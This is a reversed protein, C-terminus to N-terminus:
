GDIVVMDGNELGSLLEYNTEDAMGVTIDRRERRGNRLIVCTPSNGRWHIAKRPILLADINEYSIIHVHVSMGMRLRPDTDRVGIVVRFYKQWDPRGPAHGAMSSVTQVSGALRLTPYAIPEIVAERGVSVNSLEAEPVECRVILNSMDGIVMFPQNQYVSDGVRITRFEGTIHLAKYIVIGAIPAKVNCHALQTKALALRREASALKTRAGTLVSPHLYEKTLALKMELNRVQRELCEVKASQQAVEEKSVLDEKLLERASTMYGREVMLAARAEATQAALDDLELPLKAKELSDVDCQALAHEAVLEVLKREIESSDFRVVVDGRNVHAGEDILWVVTASGNFESVMTKVTQSGIVGEYVSSVHFPRRVIKATSLLDNEPSRRTIVGATLAILLLPICVYLLKKM